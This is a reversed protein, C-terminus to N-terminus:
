GDCWQFLAVPTLTCYWRTKKALKELQVKLTQKDLVLWEERRLTKVGFKKVTM